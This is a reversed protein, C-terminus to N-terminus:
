LISKHERSRIVLDHVDDVKANFLDLLQQATPCSKPPQKSKGSGMLSGLTRRLKRSSSADVSLRLNWYSFEKQRYTEHRKREHLVWELRDEEAQSWVATANRLDDQSVVCDSVSQMWRNRWSNDDVALRLVPAFEDALARLVRDCRLTIGRPPPFLM